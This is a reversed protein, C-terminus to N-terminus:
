PAPFTAALVIELLTDLKGFNAQDPPLVYPVMMGTLPDLVTTGAPPAPRAPPDNNFKLAFNVKLALYKSLSTSISTVSNLRFGQLKNFAELLELGESFSFYPTFKNEYFLFIRGSHYDFTTEDVNKQHTYDYGIEGRFLQHISKFFLRAYGVQPEL